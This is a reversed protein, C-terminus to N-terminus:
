YIVIKNKQKSTKWTGEREKMPWTWDMVSDWQNYKLNDGPDLQKKDIGNVGPGLCQQERKKKKAQIHYCNIIVM